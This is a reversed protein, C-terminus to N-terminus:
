ATSIKSLPSQTAVGRQLMITGSMGVCPLVTIRPSANTGVPPSSNREQRRLFEVLDVSNARLKQEETFHIYPM